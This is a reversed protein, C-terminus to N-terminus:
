SQRSCPYVTLHGESVRKLKIPLGGPPALLHDASKGVLILRAFRPLEGGGGGGGGGGGVWVGFVM